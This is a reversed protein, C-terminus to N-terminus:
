FGLNINSMLSLKYEVELNAYYMNSCKLQSYIFFCIIKRLYKLAVCSIEFRNVTPGIEGLGTPTLPTGTAVSTEPVSRFFLNAFHKYFDIMPVSLFKEHIKNKLVRDRICM